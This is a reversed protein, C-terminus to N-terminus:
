TAAPRPRRAAPPVPPPVDMSPVSPAQWAVKPCTVRPATKDYSMRAPNVVMYSEVPDKEVPPVTKPLVARRVTTTAPITRSTAAPVVLTPVPLSMVVPAPRPVQMVVPIPITRPQEGVLYDVMSAFDVGCGDQAVVANGQPPPIMYGVQQVAPPTMQTPVLVWVMQQAPQPVM